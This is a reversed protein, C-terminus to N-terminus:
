VFEKQKTTVPKRFYGIKELAEYINQLSREGLNDINTIDEPKKMLLDRVTFIGKKELANAIRIPIDIEFISM